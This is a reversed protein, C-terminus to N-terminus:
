PCAGAKSRYSELRTGIQILLIKVSDWRARIFKPIWEVLMWDNQLTRRSGTNCSFIIRGTVYDQKCREQFHSQFSVLATKNRSKLSITYVQNTEAVTFQKSTNMRCASAVVQLRTDSVGRTRRPNKMHSGM